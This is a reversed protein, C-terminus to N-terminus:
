RELYAKLSKLVEPWAHTVADHYWDWDPGNQYGNQCLYVSTGDKGPKAEVRLSMPGLIQRDPSLYTYNDIQVHKTPEYSSIVGCSVYKAGADSFGWGLVYSGGVKKEILSREVGWWGKLAEFDVIADIVQNPNAKVEITGEVKRM